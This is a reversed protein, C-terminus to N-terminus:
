NLAKLRPLQRVLELALRLQNDRKLMAEAKGNAEGASGNNEGNRELHRTLDKERIVSKDDDERPQEFAVAIDPVIGEAQISRGSPTYYLATTLKIGSGDSLPIVTQVSGKGFSREGLIASRKRDQLAGAVIESASASGANILTVMPAALDSSQSGANYDKRTSADKGQIYVILGENIFTDAVSVAQNLLGGPNNRLDLVVGNIPGRTKKFEAIRDHLERTTNENFKTLRLYLVGKDLEESRVSVIPITDRVMTVKEPKQSDKHLITLTIKSGRPGRIKGVAETLSLDQTPQGEIELILDGSKLGAKHAPTDDIPSVVMLRGNDQTIEIGIGGFEGSTSVQMDRFEEPTMFSSHPDLQQLLGKIADDVLEKRGIDRVYYDEVLSMVQSFRKLADYRDEKDKASDACLTGAFASLLVLVSVMFLWRRIRM